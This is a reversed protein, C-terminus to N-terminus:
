SRCCARAPQERRSPAELPGAGNNTVAGVLVKMQMLCRRLVTEIRLPASPFMQPICNARERMDVGSRDLPAGTLGAM